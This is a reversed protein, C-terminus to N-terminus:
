AGSWRSIEAGAALLAGIREEGALAALPHNNRGPLLIRLRVGRALARLMARLLSSPPIFYPNTVLIEREAVDLVQQLVPLTM